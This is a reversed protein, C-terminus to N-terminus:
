ERLGLRGPEAQWAPGWCRLPLDGLRDTTSCRWTAQWHELLEGLRALDVPNAAVLRAGAEQLLQTAARRDQEATFDGRALVALVTRERDDSIWSALTALDNRGAELVFLSRMASGGFPVERLAPYGVLPVHLGISNRWQVVKQRVLALWVADHLVTRVAPGASEHRSPWPFALTPRTPVTRTPM